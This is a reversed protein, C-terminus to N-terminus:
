NLIKKFEEIWSTKFPLKTKESLQVAHVLLHAHREKEIQKGSLIIIKVAFFACCLEYRKRGWKLNKKISPEVKILEIVECM